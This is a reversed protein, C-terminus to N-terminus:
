PLALFRTGSSVDDALVTRVQEFLDRVPRPDLTRDDPAQDVRDAPSALPHLQPALHAFLRAVQHFDGRQRGCQRHVEECTSLEFMSSSPNIVDNMSGYIPERRM